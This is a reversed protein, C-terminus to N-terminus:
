DLDAFLDKLLIRIPSDPVALIGEAPEQFSGKTCVYARRKVPDLVWINGVGFALYDDIKDEISRLTDDKSLIEICVLPPRTFVPEIPQDRLIICVDPIRYRNVSVRIRQEVVVRVSWERARNRIWTALTTQLNAHDYEGLNREVLQGDILEMDPSYSTALYEEVSILTATAM